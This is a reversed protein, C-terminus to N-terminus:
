LHPLRNQRGATEKIKREKRNKDACTSEKVSPCRGCGSDLLVDLTGEHLALGESLPQRADCMVLTWILGPLKPATNCGFSM